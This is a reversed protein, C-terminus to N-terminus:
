KYFKMIAIPKSTIYKEIRLLEAQILAISKDLEAAFMNIKGLEGVLQRQTSLLVSADTNIYSLAEIQLLLKDNADLSKEFNQLINEYEQLLPILTTKM